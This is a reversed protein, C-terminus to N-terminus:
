PAGAIPENVDAICHGVCMCEILSFVLSMEAATVPLRGLLEWVTGRQRWLSATNTIVLGVFSQGYDDSNLPM